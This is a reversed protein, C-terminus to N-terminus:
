KKTSKSYRSKWFWLMFIWETPTDHVLQDGKAEKALDRSSLLPPHTFLHTPLQLLQSGYLWTCTPGLTNQWGQSAPGSPDPPVEQAPM